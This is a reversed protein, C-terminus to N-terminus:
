MLWTGWREVAPPALANQYYSMRWTCRISTLWTSGRFNFSSSTVQLRSLSRVPQHWPNAPCEGYSKQLENCAEALNDRPFNRMNGLIPDRPPGPPYVLGTPPGGSVTKVCIYGVSAFSLAFAGIQLPSADLLLQLIGDM